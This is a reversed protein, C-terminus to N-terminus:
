ENIRYGYGWITSLEVLSKHQDLKKRIRKVLDDVLRGDGAYEYGWM